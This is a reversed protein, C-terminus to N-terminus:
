NLFSDYLTLIGAAVSESDLGLSFIRERGTMGHYRGAVVGAVLGALEEPNGCACDAVGDLLTEVDGVRTSVVPLNASLAEKVVQPSGESISTLLLLDADRMMQAAEARSKGELIMERTRIGYREALEALVERFLPYNKVKRNKSAPFIVALEDKNRLDPRSAPPTFLGTEVACPFIEVRRAGAHLALASMRENLSLVVDTKRIIRRTLAVQVYKGQEPQIDGGHLTLVVPVDIHRFPNLLFLGSLGYHIHVLDYRGASIIRPLEFMSRLYVMNGSECPNIYHVDVVSDPGAKRLAEVQEAVFIGYTPKAPTPYMNTVILVRM